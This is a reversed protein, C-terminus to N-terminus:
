EAQQLQELLHDLANFRQEWQRRIEDLWLHVEDLKAKNLECVRERGQKQLSVVGCEELIKLHLSVAQRSMDFHSALTNVNQPKRALLALMDRRSPDALAQFVDRRTEM